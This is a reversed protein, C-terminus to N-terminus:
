KIKGVKLFQNENHSIEPLLSILEACLIAAKTIEIDKFIWNRFMISSYINRPVAQIHEKSFDTYDGNLHIIQMNKPINYLEKFYTNAQVYGNETKVRCKKGDKDAIITGIKNRSPMRFKTTKPRDGFYKQITKGLASRTVRHDPFESTFLDALVDMQIDDKYHKKLWDLEEKTYIWKGKPM